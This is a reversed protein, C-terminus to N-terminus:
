LDCFVSVSCDCFLSEGIGRACTENEEFSLTPQNCYRIPRVPFHSLVEERSTRSSKTNKSGANNHLDGEEDDCCSEKSCTLLANSRNAKIKQDGERKEMPQQTRTTCTSTTSLKTEHDRPRSFVQIPGVVKPSYSPSGRAVSNEHYSNGRHRRYVNRVHGHLALCREASELGSPKNKNKNFVQM